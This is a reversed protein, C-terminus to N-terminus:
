ESEGAEEDEGRVYAVFAEIDQETATKADLFAVPRRKREQAGDSGVAGYRPFPQDEEPSRMGDPSIPAQKVQELAWEAQKLPMMESFGKPIAAKQAPERESEGM